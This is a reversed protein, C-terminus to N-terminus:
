EQVPAAADTDAPHRSAERVCQEVAPRLDGSAGASSRMEIQVLDGRRSVQRVPVTRPLENLMVEPVWGRVLVEAASGGASASPGTRHLSLIVLRLDDEAPRGSKAVIAALPRDLPFYKAGSAEFARLAAAFAANQPQALRQEIDENKIFFVNGVRTLFCRGDTHNGKLDCAIFPSADAEDAEDGLFFFYSSWGKQWGKDNSCKFAEEPLLRADLLDQLRGPMANRSRDYERLAFGITKLNALCADRRFTPEPATLLLAAIVALPLICVLIGIFRFRVIAGSGRSIILSAVATGIGILALIMAVNAAGDCAPVLMAVCAAIGLWLAMHGALRPTVVTWKHEQETMM